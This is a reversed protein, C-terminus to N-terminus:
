KAFLFSDFAMEGVLDLVSLMLFKQSDMGPNRKLPALTNVERTM